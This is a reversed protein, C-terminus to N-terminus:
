QIVFTIIDREYKFLQSECKFNLFYRLTIMLRAGLHLMFLSTFHLSCRLNYLIEGFAVSNQSTMIVCFLWIDAKLFAIKGTLLTNKYCASGLSCM